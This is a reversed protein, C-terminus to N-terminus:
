LLLVIQLFLVIRIIALSCQGAFPEETDLLIFFFPFKQSLILYYSLYYYYIYNASPAIPFLM